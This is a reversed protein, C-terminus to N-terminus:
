AASSWGARPGASRTTPACRSRSWAGTGPASTTGRRTPASTCTPRRDRRRGADGARRRDQRHRAAAFRYVRDSGEVSVQRDLARCGRSTPTSRVRCRARDAHLGLPAQPDDRRHVASRRLLRGDPQRQRRRRGPVPDRHRRRPAAGRLAGGRRPQRLLPRVLAGVSGRRQSRDGGADDVEGRANRRYVRAQRIDVEERGPTYHVAFEKNEEAGRETLVQVVRQAFTRSLGNRHVRVVRRDLLVVAGSGTPDAAAGAAPPPLLTLADEAFRRALEDPSASIATSAPAGASRRLAEARSGAAAAGAGHAAAGAGRRTKGQRHLLKGLAVLASPEDPLRAALGKLTALARQAEGAGELLRALEIELSPVDPRLAVVAALRTRAEDGDGRRRARISLQHMLDTDRRRDSRWIPSCGTPRASGAPRTTSACPRAGCARCRGARGRPLAELRTVATLPLGADAEEQAIALSAAWCTPISRWRRAGRRSRGRMAGRPARPSAWGRWCCRAGRRRRSRTWRRSWCGAASTTTTPPTPPRSGCRRRRGPAVGGAVAARRRRSRRRRRGITAIARRRGPSCARRSRGVGRGGAPGSGGPAGNSCRTWRRSGRRRRRGAGRWRRRPLRRRASTTACASRRARGRGHRARLAALGGRHDGDQDPDPELRAGPPHRGRGSGARRARVVDRAFVARATSGCRSRGPRDSACRPRGIAIAACSRRRRLRGGSRRSAAPRGPVPRRRARRRRGVRWGVDHTKGPYRRRARARGGGEGAPVGHEPQRARRRVARHRLQAVAPGAVRAVGGSRATEGRQDLLHALLWSAQAAVLPHAGKAVGAACRPKSRARTSTRRWRRSRPSRARGRPERRTRRWGPAKTPSCRTTRARPARPVRAGIVAVACARLAAGSRSDRRPNLM